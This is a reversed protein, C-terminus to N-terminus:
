RIVVNTLALSLLGVKKEGGDAQRGDLCAAALLLFKVAFAAM